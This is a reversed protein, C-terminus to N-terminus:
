ILSKVSSLLVPGSALMPGSDSVPMLGTDHDQRARHLKTLLQQTRQFEDRLTSNEDLLLRNADLLRNSASINDALQTELTSIRTNLEETGVTAGGEALSSSIGRPVSGRSVLARLEDLKDQFVDFRILGSVHSVMSKLSVVFLSKLFSTFSQRFSGQYLAFAEAMSLILTNSRLHRRVHRQEQREWFDSKWLYTLWSTRTGLISLKMRFYTAFVKGESHVTSVWLDLFESESVGLLQYFELVAVVQWWFGEKKQIFLSVQLDFISNRDDIGPASRASLACGIFTHWRCHTVLRITILDFEAIQFRQQALLQAIVELEDIVCCLRQQRRSFIVAARHQLDVGHDLSASGGILFIQLQHRLHQRRGIKLPRHKVTRVGEPFLGKQVLLHYRRILSQFPLEPQSVLFHEVYNWFKVPRPIGQRLVFSTKVVVGHQEHPVQLDEITQLSTRFSQLKWIVVAELFADVHEYAHHLLIGLYGHVRVEDLVDHGLRRIRTVPEGYRGLGPRRYYVGVEPHVVYHKMFIRYGVLHVVHLEHVKLVIQQHTRQALQREEKQGTHVGIHHLVSEVLEYWDDRIDTNVDDNYNENRYNIERVQHSPEILSSRIKTLLSLMKNTKNDIDKYYIIAYYCILLRKNPGPLVTDKIAKIHEMVSAWTYIRTM